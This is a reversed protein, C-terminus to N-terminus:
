KLIRIQSILAVPAEFSKPYDAAVRQYTALAEDVKGMSELNAAIAMRATPILEHKPYKDILKQLTANSDAFKRDTRLTEALFLHATAGAQTNPYRAIVQEYSQANKASGLLEAASAQQRESYFRYGAFGVIVLIVVLIAALIHGRYKFWFLHAELAPDLASPSASPM